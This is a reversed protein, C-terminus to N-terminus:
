PRRPIVINMFNFLAVQISLFYCFVRDVIGKDIKVEIGNYELIKNKLENGMRKKIYRSGQKSNMFWRVKKKLAYKPLYDSDATIASFTKYM